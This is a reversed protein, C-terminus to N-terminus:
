EDSNNKQSYNIWTRILIGTETPTFDIWVKKIGGDKYRSVKTVLNLPKYVEEFDMGLAKCNAIVNHDSRLHEKFEGMAFAYDVVM